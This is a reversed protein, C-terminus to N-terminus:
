VSLVRGGLAGFFLMVAVHKNSVFRASMNKGDDWRATGLQWALHAGAGAVSVFWPWSLQAAVGAVTWAGVAGVALTGLVVRSRAPGILLATSKLGLRKDDRVDQHAYLTDYVVTWLACGTFLAIPAAAAASASFPSLMLDALSSVHVTGGGGSRGLGGLRAYADLADLLARSSAGVLGDLAGRLSEVVGPGDRAREAAAAVLVGWNMALGLAVQPYYTVRKLAPYVVVLPLSALAWAGGAAPLQLLAGLGGLFLAAAACLAAPRSLAGSAIPRARTRAVAADFRADWVDNVACGAGRVFFAGAGLAALLAADPAAGPLSAVCAGTWAPLLVLLTGAPRDVRALRLYPVVAAPLLPSDVWTRTVQPDPDAAHISFSRACLRPRAPLARRLLSSLM